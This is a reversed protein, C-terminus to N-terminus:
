IFITKAVNLCGYAIQKSKRTLPLITMLCKTDLEFKNRSSIFLLDFKHGMVGTFILPPPIFM